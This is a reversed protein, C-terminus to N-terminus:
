NLQRIKCIFVSLGLSVKDSVDPEWTIFSHPSFDLHQSETEKGETEEANCENWKYIIFILNHFIELMFFVYFFFICNIGIFVISPDKM